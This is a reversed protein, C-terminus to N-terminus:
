GEANLAMENIKKITNDLQRLEATEQAISLDLETKMEEKVRNVVYDVSQDLASYNKTQKLRRIREKYDDYMQERFQDVEWEQSGVQSQKNNIRSVLEADGYRSYNSHNSHKSHDSYDDYVAVIGVLAGGVFFAM